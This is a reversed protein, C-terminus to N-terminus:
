KWNVEPKIHPFGGFNVVNSFKSKCTEINKDCGATVTFADGNAVIFTTPLFLDVVNSVYSKVEYSAGSNLGSTWTLIGNAIWADPQGISGITFKLKSTATVVTTNYTFSGEVLTCAGINTSSAQTFLNHRCKATTSIGIKKGLQRMLSHIDAKFGDETWQIMGLSGEFIVVTGASVNSWDARFVTILADDYLGNQLDTENLDVVWGGGFEQNSVEANSRLNMIVRELGPTPKYQISDITLPKDHNSFGKITADSRVIKIFTSITGNDIGQQLPASITKM